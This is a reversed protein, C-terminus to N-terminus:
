SIKLCNNSLFQQEHLDSRKVMKRYWELILNEKEEEKLKWDLNSCRLKEILVQLCLAVSVSVNFSETFGYMPISVCKDAIAKAETSVGKFETGFVLATKQNIELRAINEADQSPETIWIQYGNRKLEQLCGITNNSGTNNHRYISLWKAGGRSIYPSIRNKFHNEIFHVNQIGMAECTRLVASGNHSNEFDEMVVVLHRTRQELVQRAKVKKSETVFEGLYGILKDRVAKEM